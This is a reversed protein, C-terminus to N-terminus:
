WIGQFGITFTRALPYAYFDTGLSASGASSGASNLDPAFGSYDSWTKVNKGAVYLRASQAGMM